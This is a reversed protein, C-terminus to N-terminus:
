NKNNKFNKLQQELSPYKKPKCAIRTCYGPGKGNGACWCTNCDVNLVEEPICTFAPNMVEDETYTKETEISPTTTTLLDHSTM